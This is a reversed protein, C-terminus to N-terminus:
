LLFLRTMYVSALAGTVDACLCAVITHRVKKVQVVGFYLALVYFTTETSGQMTSVIQGVLSDPGHTKMIEAAVGYAGNGSLPRLLAMPLTEAPMGILSTVPELFGVMLDLAGSARLMGVGVLIAVLYPIIRIAIQFGEQGGEVLSDYVKVGRSLAVFLVLCLLLPLAWQGSVIKLAGVLGSEDSVGASENVLQVFADVLSGAVVLVGAVWAALGWGTIWPPSARLAADAESTDAVQLDDKGDGEGEIGAVSDCPVARFLPLRVLMKAIFIAVVTSCTTAALTPLLISGPATSGMSARLAIIGTPLLAIQSTNIALFLAMADTACGKHKNLKNLEIMAKLGFPTAANGLGLMNATMNMIMMGMAPHDAPVNPFLWRMLPALARAVWRVVGANQLAKMAGIWFTMVGVLGVALDVATDAWETTALAVENMHGTLAGCVVAGLIM